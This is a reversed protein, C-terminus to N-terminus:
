SSGLSGQLVTGVNLLHPVHLECLNHSKGPTVSEDWDKQFVDRCDELRWKFVEISPSNLLCGIGRLVSRITLHKRRDLRYKGRYYKNMPGLEAM